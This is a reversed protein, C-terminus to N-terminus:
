STFGFYDRESTKYVDEFEDITMFGDKVFEDYLEDKPSYSFIFDDIYPKSEATMENMIDSQEHSGLTRIAATYRAFVNSRLQSKYSIKVPQIDTYFGSLVNILRSLHGTSCTSHMDYLEDILRKELEFRNESTSIKEWVLLMIDCMSLGEYRATDIIIRQFTEIVANLKNTDEEPNDEYLYHRVDTISKYVGDTSRETGRSQTILNRLTDIIQKTVTLDHVNQVNTYITRSRNETYLNGLEVIIQTGISKAEGYGARDLIDACEARYNIEANNDKAINILFSQVADVDYTGIPFQTLLYQASLIKYVLPTKESKSQNEGMRDDGFNNFFYLHCANVIDYDLKIIKENNSFFHYRSQLPYQDDKVISLASEICHTSRHIHPIRQMYRVAQTRDEWSVKPDKAIEAIKLFPNQVNCSSLGFTSTNIGMFMFPMDEFSSIEYKLKDEDSEKKLTGEKESSHIKEFLQKTNQDDIDSM